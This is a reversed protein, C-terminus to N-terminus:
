MLYFTLFGNKTYSTVISQGDIFQYLSIRFHLRWAILQALTVVDFYWERRVMRLQFFDGWLRLHRSFRDNYIAVHALSSNSYAHHQRQVIIIAVAFAHYLVITADQHSAVTQANIADRGIDTRPVQSLISIYLM